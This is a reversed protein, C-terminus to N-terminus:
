PPNMSLNGIPATMFRESVILAPLGVHLAVHARQEFADLLALDIRAEDDGVM